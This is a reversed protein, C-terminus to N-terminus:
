WLGPILRFRVRQAYDKYGPLEQILIRDELITRVVITLMAIGAPIFAWRAELIFPSLFIFMLMSFYGPHRIFRYPGHSIVRHDREKQIRVTAEFHPNVAMAWVVPVFALLALAAAAISWSIAINPGNFRVDLGAMVPILITMPSYIALIVKDFKKTDPYRKQRHKILEPNAKILIIMVITLSFFFLGMYLWAGRWDFTGASAFLALGFGLLGGVVTLIRKIRKLVLRDSLKPSEPHTESANLQSNHKDEMM